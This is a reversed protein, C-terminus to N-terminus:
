LEANEDIYFGTDAGNTAVLAAGATIDSVTGELMLFSDTVKRLTLATTDTATSGAYLRLAQTSFTVTPSAIRMRDRPVNIWVKTASYAMGNGVTAYTAEFRIRRFYQRCEALEAAYGRPRYPPLSDATYEGEYLAAWLLEVTEGAAVFIRFSFLGNAHKYVIVSGTDDVLRMSFQATDATVAEATVVGSGCSIAGGRQCIAITLTKGSLDHDIIQQWALGTAANNTLRIHGDAVEVTLNSNGHRWRDIGYGAATYTANGRQNVPRVFYGNTLYDLPTLYYGAPKNNLKAANVATGGAPLAGAQAPTHTHAAPPFTVPKGPLNNWNVAMPDDAPTETEGVYSLSSKVEFPLKFTHLVYGSKAFAVQVEGVGANATVAEPVTLTAMGGATTGQYAQSTAGNKRFYFAATLGTLNYAQSGDMVCLCIECSGKDHQHVVVPEVATEKGLRIVRDIRM